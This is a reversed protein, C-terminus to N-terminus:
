SKTLHMLISLDTHKQINLSFAKTGNPQSTSIIKKEKPNFVCLVAGKEYGMIIMPIAKHDLMRRKTGPTYVFARCGFMKIGGLNPPSSRLLEPPSLENLGKHSCANQIFASRLLAEGWLQKRLIAQNLMSRFREIVKRNMCEVIGNSEPNHSASMM